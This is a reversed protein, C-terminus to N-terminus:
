KEGGQLTQFYNETSCWAQVMGPLITTVAKQVKVFRAHAKGKWRFRKKREKDGQRSQGIQALCENDRACGM